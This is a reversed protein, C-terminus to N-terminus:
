KRAKNVELSEIGMCIKGPKETYNSRFVRQTGHLIKPKFIKLVLSLKQPTYEV